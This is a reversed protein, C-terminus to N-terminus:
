APVLPLCCRKFKRGSGCPCPDNRGVGKFPNVAPQPAAPAWGVDDEDLRPRERKAADSFGYWGSLEGVADDLPAIRDHRFGAMREPDALTRALDQRFDEYAMWTRDVLGRRLAQRVLDSLAELGLLSVASVWGIWVFSQRQPRLTAYLRRLYAEAEGRAIRGTATLYALTELAGARAYEDGEAAEIASKLADLGGDSDAYTGILIGKLTTTVGEGLAAEIAEGGEILRCLPAFARTERKEAALHLIFFVADAAEESRDAGDAFRELVDLLGPAAEGWNDLAWRMAERPLDHGAGSFARVAAEVDM